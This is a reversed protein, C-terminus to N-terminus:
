SFGAILGSHVFSQRPSLASWLPGQGKAHGLLRIILWEVAGGEEPM